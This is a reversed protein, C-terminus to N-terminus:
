LKGDRRCWNRQGPVVIRKSPTSFHFPSICRLWRAECNGGKREWTRGVSLQHNIVECVRASTQLITNGVKQLHSFKVWPRLHILKNLVSVSWTTLDVRHETNKCHLGMKNKNLWTLWFHACEQPNGRSQSGDGCSPPFPFEEDAWASNVVIDKAISYANARLPWM